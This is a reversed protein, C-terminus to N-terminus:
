SQQEGSSNTKDPNPVHSEAPREKQDFHGPDHPRNEPNERGPAGPGRRFGGHGGNKFRGRQKGNPDREDPRPGRFRDPRGRQDFHGPYHPRNGPNKRGPAGPGRRFGGHGGNKFRGRQEGNPDREDPRPGRFRAPRGKRDFHRPDHPRNGPNKRGPAGPGRRFGGHGGNKRDFFKEGLPKRKEGGKEKFMAEIEDSNPPLYDLPTHGRSDEANVNAGAAILAQVIEPFKLALHLPTQGHNDAANLDAKAAILAQVIELSGKGTALHLPTRNRDDVENLNANADILAQVIEISNGRIALHLATEKFGNKANVNAKAAILAQVIEFSELKVALHLPTQVRSSTKGQLNAGGEILIKVIEINKERIALHLPSLKSGNKVNVEAHEGILYQVVDVHQGKVALHLPVDARSTKANIEAKRSVLENVLEMRGHEAARHLATFGNKGKAKVDAGSEIVERFKEFDQSNQDILEILQNTLSAVEEDTPQKMKTESAESQNETTAFITTSLLGLSLALLYKIPIKKM